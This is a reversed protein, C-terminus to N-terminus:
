TELCRNVITRSFRAGADEDKRRTKIVKPVLRDHGEEKLIIFGRDAQRFVQFMKDVVKPLLEELNLTQSLEAGVDVLFALKEAPVNLGVQCDANRGLIFKDGELSISQGQNAGKLFTLSAM